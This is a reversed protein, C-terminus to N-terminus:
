ANITVNISRTDIKNNVLSIVMDIQLIHENPKTTVNLRNINIYPLWFKFNETINTETLTQTETTLNEFLLSRLSCGFNPQMIREGKETLLLNKANSYAQDITLYNLNFIAGVEQMLPVAIGIAIDPNLDIPNIRIAM